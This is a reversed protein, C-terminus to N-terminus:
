GMTKAVRDWVEAQYAPDYQYRPDRMAASMEDPSAFAGRGGGGAVRTGPIPAPNGTTPNAQKDYLSVLSSLAAQWTETNGLGNNIYELQSKPLTKAWAFIQQLREEGGVMAAAQQAITKRHTQIGQLADSVIDEPIGLAKIKGITEPSVAGTTLEKRFASWVDETKPTEPTIQLAPVESPAAPAETAPPTAAPPQSAAQQRLRTFAAELENYSKVFDEPSKFKAPMLTPNSAISEKLAAAETESLPSTDVKTTNM